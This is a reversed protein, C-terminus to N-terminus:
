GLWYYCDLETKRLTNEYECLCVWTITQSYTHPRFSLDLGPNHAQLQHTIYRVPILLVSGGCLPFSLDLDYDVRGTHPEEADATGGYSLNWMWLNLWHHSM